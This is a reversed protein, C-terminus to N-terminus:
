APVAHGAAILDSTLDHWNGQRDFWTVGGLVRGYKDLSRSVVLIPYFAGTISGGDPDGAWSDWLANSTFVYARRGPGDMGVATPELEPANCGALRVKARYSIKWGLDLVVDLTDGDVVRVIQAPVTWTTWDKV